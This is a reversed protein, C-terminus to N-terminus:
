LIQKQWMVTGQLNDKSNVLVTQDDVFLLKGLNQGQLTNEM